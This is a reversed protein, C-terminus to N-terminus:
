NSLSFLDSLAIKGTYLAKGIIIGEIRERELRKIREIDALSSIGGSIIVQAKVQDVFSTIASSDVGRLMGDRNIDTYIFRKAGIEVLKRGLETAEIKSTEYWGHTAVLNNRADIGIIIQEPYLKLIEQVFNQDFLAATGIIIRKVGIGLYSEVNALSRIGGGVEIELGKITLLEKILNYHIPIGSKAGDLDVIHLLKAGKQWFNYAIKLPDGYDTEQLFDGQTLRVARNQHLDIAPIIALTV